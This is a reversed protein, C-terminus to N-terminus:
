FPEVVGTERHQAEKSYGIRREYDLGTIKAKTKGTGRNGEVRSELFCYSMSNASSDCNLDYHDVGWTAAVRGLQTVHRYCKAGSPNNAAWDVAVCGSIAQCSLLCANLTDSPDQTGGFINSNPSRYWRCNAAFCVTANIKTIIVTMKIIAMTTIVSIIAVM